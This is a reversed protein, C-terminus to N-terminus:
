ILHAPFLTIDTDIDRILYEFYNGLGEIRTGANLSISLVLVVLTLVIKMTKM